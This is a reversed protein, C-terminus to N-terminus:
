DKLNYPLALIDQHMRGILIWGISNILPIYPFNKSSTILKYKYKKIKQCFKWHDYAQNFRRLFGKKSKKNLLWPHTSVLFSANIDSLKELLFDFLIYEAGEIDIKVFVKNFENLNIKKILNEFTITKAEFCINKSGSKNDRMVSSTSDGIKTDSIFSISTEESWLALNLLKIKKHFFNNLDLNEKLRRYALPDPELSLTKKALQAGYLSTPGIWGGIDIFLTQYNINSDFVSFTELEWKGQNVLNWFTKYGDPNVWYNLKNISIKLKNM